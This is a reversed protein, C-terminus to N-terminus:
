ITLSAEEQNNVLYSIKLKYRDFFSAGGCKPGAAYINYCQQPGLANPFYELNSTYGKFGGGPTLLLPDAANVHAANPLICTRILKGNLYVDLTRNNLSVILNVWRQLPFNNIGCTVTEGLSGSASPFTSVEITINNEYEGLYIRPNAAGTAGGRILLNKQQGLRQSWDSVYFWISYAYNSSNQDQKLKKPDINLVKMASRCNSLLKAKKIFLFWIVYVILAILAVTFIIGLLGM